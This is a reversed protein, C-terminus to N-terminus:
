SVIYLILGVLFLAWVISARILWVPRGQIGTGNCYDCGYGRGACERCREPEPAGMRYIM